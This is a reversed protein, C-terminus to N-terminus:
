MNNRWFKRTKPHNHKGIMSVCAPLSKFPACECHPMNCRCTYQRKNVCAEVLNDLDQKTM